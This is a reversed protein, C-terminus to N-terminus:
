RDKWGLLNIYVTAISKNNRKKERKQKLVCMFTAMEIQLFFFFPHISPKLQSCSTYSEIRRTPRTTTSLVTPLLTM